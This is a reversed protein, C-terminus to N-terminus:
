ETTTDDNGSLVNAVYEAFQEDDLALNGVALLMSSISNLSRILSESRMQAIGTVARALLSNALPQLPRPINLSALLSPAAQALMLLRRKACEARMEELSLTETAEM